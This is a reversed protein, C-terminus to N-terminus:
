VEHIYITGHISGIDLRWNGFKMRGDERPIRQISPQRATTQTNTHLSKLASLVEKLELKLEELLITTKITKSIAQFAHSLAKPHPLHVRQILSEHRRVVTNISQNSSRLDDCVEALLKWHRFVVFQHSGRHDPPQATCLALLVSIDWREFPITKLSM